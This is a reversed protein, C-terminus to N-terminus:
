HPGQPFTCQNSTRYGPLGLWLGAVDLGAITTFPPSINTRFLNENSTDNLCCCGDPPLRTNKTALMMRQQTTTPQTHLETAMRKFMQELNTCLVVKKKLIIWQNQKIGLSLRFLNSPERCQLCVSGVYLQKFILRQKPEGEWRVFNPYPTNGCGTHRLYLM